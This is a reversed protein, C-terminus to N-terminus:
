SVSVLLDNPKIEIFHSFAKVIFDKCKSLSFAIIEVLKLFLHYSFEKSLKAIYNNIKPFSSKSPFASVSPCLRSFLIYVAFASYIVM